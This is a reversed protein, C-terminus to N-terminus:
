QITNKCIAKFYLLWDQLKTINGHTVDRVDVRGFGQQIRTHASLMIKTADGAQTMQAKMQYFPYTSYAGGIFAQYMLGSFGDMAVSFLIMHESETEITYGQQIVSTIITDRMREMNCQIIITPFGGVVVIGEEAYNKQSHTSACGIFSILILFMMLRRNM